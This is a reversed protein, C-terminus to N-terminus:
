GLGLGVRVVYVVTYCVSPLTSDNISISLLGNIISQTKVSKGPTENALNVRSAKNIYAFLSFQGSSHKSGRERSKELRQRADMMKQWPQHGRTKPTTALFLCMQLM